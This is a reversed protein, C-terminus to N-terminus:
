SLYKRKQTSLVYFQSYIVKRENGSYDKMVM